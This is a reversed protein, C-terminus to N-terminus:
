EEVWWTEANFRDNVASPFVNHVRANVGAISDPFDLVAIPLDTLVLEQFETYLEFRRNQNAEARAEALIRDVEPNCYRVVNFGGDYAACEFMAGQDPSVGWSFGILFAQFDHTGSIAEVLAQFTVLRPQMEIGVEAWYSQLATLMAAVTQNGADGLMEFSLRQGDKARVGDTGPRWGASDLLERARQPDYPYTQSIGSPNYAWSLTPMTGIAVQAYGFRITDVIAQRDIAYLMAQRVELDQFLTTRDPDLNTGYFSFALTPFEHLTIDPLDRLEGVASGPVGALWDIEGTRLQAIGADTDPIVKFVYEELYPRGLWYDDYRVANAREGPVWAEFRFPGTGVVRAPDEGTSGPDRMIEAPPIEEWIHRAIIPYVAVDVAFDALPGRLHFRVTLTNMVEVSALKASLDSTYSSGTEPNLHLDYTFKVDYASFREGDHWTIGDRLYFTWRLGDASVEWAEALVGVPELTDPNIEILPEFMLATFAVSPTDNVLLPNVTRLDSSWGEVLTGGEHAAEEIEKGMLPDGGEIRTDAPIPTPPVPPTTPTPSAVVPSPTPTPTATPEGGCALLLAACVLAVLGARAAHRRPRYSKVERYEEGLCSRSALLNSRQGNGLM